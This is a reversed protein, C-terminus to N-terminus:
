LYKFTPFSIDFLCYRGDHECGPAKVIMHGLVPLNLTKLEYGLRSSFLFITVTCLSVSAISASSLQLFSSSLPAFFRVLHFHSSSYGHIM